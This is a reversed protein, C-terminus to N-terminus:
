LPALHVVTQLCLGGGIQIVAVWRSLASLDPSLVSYPGSLGGKKQHFAARQGGRVRNVLLPLTPYKEAPEGARQLWAGGFPPVVERACPYHARDHTQRRRHQVDGRSRRHLTVSPM